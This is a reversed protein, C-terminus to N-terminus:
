RAHPPAQWRTRDAGTLPLRRGSASDSHRWLWLIDVLFSWTLAGLAAAALPESIPRGVWPLVAVALSVVQVVCIAKRRRSPPLPGSLWPLPLAAALFGYRLLGSALVWVGAKEHQWALLALTMILLADVEMDFRAGFRSVMGSRRALWGDVADLAAILLALIGAAAPLLVEGTLSALLAVVAARGATVQNAAGVRPFPHFDRLLGIALLVAAGFVTAALFPYRDSLGLASKALWALAFVVAVWAAATM